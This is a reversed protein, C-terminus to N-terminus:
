DKRFMEFFMYKILIKGAPFAKFHTSGAIRAQEKTPFEVRKIRNKYSRSVLEIDISPSMNSINMKNFANVTVGRFGHLSDWITNGERKYLIKAWLALFLVFWKRPKILKSDEENVSDKMMRSAVVLEYGEEFYKRFKYIDDVPVSGKPHFFIVADCKCHKVADKCAINLGKESQKFVEIGLSNLYEVTGDKSGGDICYVQDFKSQDILPVDHKCGHIENWALLCLAIKM